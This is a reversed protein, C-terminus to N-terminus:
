VCLARLVSLSRLPPCGALEKRIEAYRATKANGEEDLEQFANAFLSIICYFRGAMM